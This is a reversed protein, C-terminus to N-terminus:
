SVKTLHTSDAKQKARDAYHKVILNAAMLRDIRIYRLFSRESKHGSLKMLIISPVGNLYHNTLFSRRMTHTTVQTWKEVNTGDSLTVIENIEAIRCVEKFLRNSTQEARLPLQGDYRNIIEIGAPHLLPITVLEGTKETKMKVRYIGDDGLTIHNSDVTVGDGHRLGLCCGLVLRDVEVQLSAGNPYAGIVSRASYLKDLDAESLFVTDAEEVKLGLKVEGKFRKKTAKLAGIYKLLSSDKLPNERGKLFKILEKYFPIELEDFTIVGKNKKKCYEELYTIITGYTKLTSSKIEPVGKKGKAYEAKQEDIFIQLYRVVNNKKRVQDATQKKEAMRLKMEDRTVSRGEEEIALAEAEVRKSLANLFANFETAQSYSPKARQKPKSWHM